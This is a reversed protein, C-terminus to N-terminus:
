PMSVFDNGTRIDVLLEAGGLDLKWTELDDVSSSKVLSTTPVSSGDFISRKEKPPSSPRYSQTRRAKNKSPGTIIQTLPSHLYRHKDKIEEMSSYLRATQTQWHSPINELSPHQINDMSACRHQNPKKPHRKINELKIYPYQTQSRVDKAFTENGSYSHRSKPANQAFNDSPFHQSVQLRNQDSINEYSSFLPGDPFRNGDKIDDINSYLQNTQPRPKDKPQKVPSRRASKPEEKSRRASHDEKKSGRAVQYEEKHGKRHFPPNDLVIAAQAVCSAREYPTQSPMMYSAVEEEIPGYRNPSASMSRIDGRDPEYWGGVSLLELGESGRRNIRTQSTQRRCTDTLKDGTDPGTVHQSIRHHKNSLPSLSAKRIIQIASTRRPSSPVSSSIREPFPQHFEMISPSIDQSYPNDWRSASGSSSVNGWQCSEDAQTLSELNSVFARRIHDDPLSPPLSSGSARFVFVNPSGSSQNRSSFAPSGFSVNTPQTKSRLIKRKPKPRPNRSEGLSSDTASPSESHLYGSQSGTSLAPSSLGSSWEM